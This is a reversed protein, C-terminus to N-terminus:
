FKLVVKAEMIDTIPIEKRNQVTVKGKGVPKPERSKWELTITESDAATLQGEYQSEPTSISLKRGINKRYQRPNSLPATAGASTVELSFDVQDRDLRGEVARSIDICDKLTIGEDGDLVIHIKNDPSVNLSILFLSPKENLVETVIEQM